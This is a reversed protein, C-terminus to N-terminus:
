WQKSLVLARKSGQYGAVDFYSHGVFYNGKVRCINNRLFVVETWISWLLHTAIPCVQWCKSRFPATVGRLIGVKAVWNRPFDRSFRSNPKTESTETTVTCWLKLGEQWILSKLSWCVLELLTLRPTYLALMLVNHIRICNLTRVSGNPAAHCVTYHHHNDTGTHM